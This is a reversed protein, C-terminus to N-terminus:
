TNLFANTIISPVGNCVTIIAPIEKTGTQSISIPPNKPVIPSIAKIM